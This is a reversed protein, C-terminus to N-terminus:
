RDLTTRLTPDNADHYYWRRIVYGPDIALVQFGRIKRTMAFKRPVNYMFLCPMVNEYLHEHMKHWIGQRKDYDLERQGIAILEDLYPDMVGSHNSGEVEFAGWKSHWLQEPDSELEPVWALNCMDFDRKKLKDLFTAWEMQELNLEIEVEALAEQLAVGFIKSAENGSPYLFTMSLKVGNKDRVGDGDLDIWGAEDLLEMAADPDYDHPVVDNNYAAANRPFPGTVRRSLGKYQTVRYSPFDFSLEIAKRVALEKLQPRFMNFGTYGYVGLYKYGKYFKSTFDESKTRGGFYDSSEIREFFDLEGNLLANTATEDDSIVRYRITDIYGANDKDFYLCKGNADVFRQCEVFDDNWETIRYPGLGIWMQNHPNNNIFEGQQEDTFEKQFSQNDPDSLDYVHSPLITMQKTIASVAFSYQGEQFIRVYHDDVVECGTAKEYQFRKEDCDVSKNSYISWSFYVDRADLMQDTHGAGPHWRVDTRLAMSFVTGLEVSQVHDKAVTVAESLSNGKSMPTVTYGDASEEVKGYVAKAAIHPPQGEGTKPNKVRVDTAGAYNTADAPNLVVMDETVLTEILRPRFNHQEWDEIQLSEHVEYLMRRTYASNETVYNVHKPLSAMHVIVRGGYLPKPAALGKEIEKARDPHFTDYPAAGPGAEGEPIAAEDNDQGMSAPTLLLGAVLLPSLLCNLKSVSRFAKPLM